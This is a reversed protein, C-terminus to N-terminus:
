EEPFLTELIPGDGSYVEVVTGRPDFTLGLAEGKQPESFKLKGKFDDGDQVVEVEGQLVGDVYLPYFGAPVDEVEIIEQLQLYIEKLKSQHDKEQKLKIVGFTLITTKVGEVQM